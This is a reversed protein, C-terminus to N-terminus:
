TTPLKIPYLKMLFPTENEDLVKVEQLFVKARLFSSSLPPSFDHFIRFFGFKYV